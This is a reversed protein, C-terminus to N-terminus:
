RLLMPQIRTKGTASKVVVQAQKVQEATVEPIVPDLVVESEVPAAVSVAPPEPVQFGWTPSEREAVVSVFVAVAGTVHM